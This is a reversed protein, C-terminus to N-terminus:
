ARGDRADETWRGRWTTAVNAVFSCTSVNMQQRDKERLTGGEVSYRVLSMETSQVNPPLHPLDEEHDDLLTKRPSTAM